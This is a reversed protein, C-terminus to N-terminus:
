EHFREHQNGNVARGRRHPCDRGGPRRDWWFYILIVKLGLEHATEIQRQLYPQSFECYMPRSIMDKTATADDIFVADCGIKAMARIEEINRRTLRDIIFHMLEPEDNVLYFRNTLGVSHSSMYFSNVLTGAVFHDSGFSLIYAQMYDLHGRALIEDATPIPIREIADKETFVSREWESDQDKEHLSLILPRRSGSRTDLEDYGIGDLSPVIRKHPRDARSNAWQQPQAIDFPLVQHYRRYEQIHEQPEKLCWDYYTWSEQRTYNVWHDAQTLMLYPATVPFCDVPQGAFTSLMRERPTMHM